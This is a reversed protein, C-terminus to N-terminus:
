LMIEMEPCRINLESPFHPNLYTKGQKPKQRDKGELINKDEPPSGGPFFEINDENNDENNTADKDRSPGADKDRSGRADKGRSGRADKGRSGELAQDVEAMYHLTYSNSTAGGNEYFRNEWDLLGDAKARNLEKKVDQVYLCTDEHLTAHSPDCRGTKLNRRASLAAFVKFRRYTMRPDSAMWSPLMAIPPLDGAM